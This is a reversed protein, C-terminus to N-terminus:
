NEPEPARPISAPRSQPADNPDGHEEDDKPPAVHAPEHGHLRSCEGTVAYGYIASAGFLALFGLGFAIDAGRSIPAGEYVSHDATAAYVTRGAELGAFVTDLIPAAKSQTCENPVYEATPSLAANQPRTVFLFSCGPLGGVMSLIM